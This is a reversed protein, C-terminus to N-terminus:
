NEVIKEISYVKQEKNLLYNKILMDALLGSIFFQLGIMVLFVAVTPLFTNSLDTGKFIRLYISYFGSILGMTGSVLGLFGFLHMPRASYKQWFWVGILDMFGKIVKTLNYNTKGHIRERHNVKIEAIKFGKLSVLTVIYRHLEGYLELESLCEKRYAKLSCGSDNIKDNILFHRLFNSLRSSIKVSFSDKRKYRWGSVCDFGEELKALLKPIDKPDNQLDGDLTIVINGTANHFGALLAASQGFNKRLKILKVHSDKIKILSEFTKDSSGDDIFIVEYSKYKQSLSNFISKIEEFLPKVNDQENHVPIVFSIDM